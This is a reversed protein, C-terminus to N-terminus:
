LPRQTDSLGLQATNNTAQTIARRRSHVIRQETQLVMHGTVVGGNPFDGCFQRNTGKPCQLARSHRVLM